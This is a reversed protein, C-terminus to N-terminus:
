RMVLATAGRCSHTPSACPACVGRVHRCVFSCFEPAFDCGDVNVGWTTVYSSARAELTHRLWPGADNRVGFATGVLPDTTRLYASPILALTWGQSRTSVEPLHM